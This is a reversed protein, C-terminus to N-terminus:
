WRYQETSTRSGWTCREGDNVGRAVTIEDLVHDGARGLSITATRSSRSQGQHSELTAPGRLVALGLLVGQEGVGQTDLLHDHAQVLHVGSLGLVVLLAVVLNDLFNAVVDLLNAVVRGLYPWRKWAQCNPIMAQQHYM